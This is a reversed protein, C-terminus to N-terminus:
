GGVLRLIGQLLWPNAIVGVVAAAVGLWRGRDLVIAVIGAAVASRFLM